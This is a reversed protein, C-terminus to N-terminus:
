LIHYFKGDVRIRVYLKDAGATNSATCTYVGDHNATVNRLTLQQDSALVKIDNASGKTTWVYRLYPYGVAECYLVVDSGATATTENILGFTRM